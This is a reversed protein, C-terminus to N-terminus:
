YWALMEQSSKVLALLSILSLLCLITLLFEHTPPFEVDRNLIIGLKLNKNKKM